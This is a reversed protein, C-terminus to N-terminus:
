VPLFLCLLLSDSEPKDILRAGLNNSKKYTYVLETVVVAVVYEFVNVKVIVSQEGAAPNVPKIGDEQPVPYYM